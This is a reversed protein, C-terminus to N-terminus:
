LSLSQHGALLWQDLSQSWQLCTLLGLLAAPGVRDTGTKTLSPEAAVYILHKMAAPLKCLFCHAQKPPTCDITCTDCGATFLHVSLQNLPLM